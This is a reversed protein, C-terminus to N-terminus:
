ESVLSQAMLVWTRMAGQKTFVKDPRKQPAIGTATWQEGTLSDVWYLSAATWNSVDGANFAAELFSYWANLATDISSTQQIELSVTGQPGAIASTMVAGDASVNNESVNDTKSFTIQGLGMTTVGMTIATGINPLNLTGIGAKISYTSNM